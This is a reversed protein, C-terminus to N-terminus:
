FRPEVESIYQKPQNATETYLAQLYNRFVPDNYIDVGFASEEIRKKVAYYLLTTAYQDPLSLNVAESELQTPWDWAVIRYKTTTTGLDQDTPFYLTCDEDPNNSQKLDFVIETEQYRRDGVDVMRDRNYGMIGYGLRNDFDGFAQRTFVRTVRRYPLSYEFVGSTTPLFVDGKVRMWDVEPMALIENQSANVVELLFARSYQDSLQRQLMTIFADTRM